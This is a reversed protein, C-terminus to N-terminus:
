EDVTDEKLDVVRPDGTDPCRDQREHDLATVEIDGEEVSAARGVDGADAPYGERGIDAGKGSVARQELGDAVGFLDVDEGGGVVGRREADGHREHDIVHDGFDHTEGAVDGVPDFLREGDGIRLPKDADRVLGTGVKQVQVGVDGGVPDAGGPAPDVPRGEIGPRSRVDGGEAGAVSQRAVIEDEDAVTALGAAVVLVSAEEEGGEGVKEGGIEIHEADAAFGIDVSVQAGRKGGAHANM